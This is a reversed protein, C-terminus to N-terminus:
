KPRRRAVITGGARRRRRLWLGVGLVSVVVVAVLVDVLGSAAAMVILAPPSMAHRM